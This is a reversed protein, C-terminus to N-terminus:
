YGEEKFLFPARWFLKIGLKLIKIILFIKQIEKSKGLIKHNSITVNRTIFKPRRNGEGFPEYRSILDVLSKNIYCFDLDGLIGSDLITNEYGAEIFASEM